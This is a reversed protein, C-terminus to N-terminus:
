FKYMGEPAELALSKEILSGYDFHHSNLWELVKALKSFEIDIKAKQM